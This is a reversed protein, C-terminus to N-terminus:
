HKRQVGPSKKAQAEVAFEQKVFPQKLTLESRVGKTSSSQTPEMAGLDTLFHWHINPYGNEPEKREPIGGSM